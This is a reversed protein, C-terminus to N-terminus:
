SLDPLPILAILPEDAPPDVSEEFWTVAASSDDPSRDGLGGASDGDAVRGPVPEDDRPTRAAPSTDQM